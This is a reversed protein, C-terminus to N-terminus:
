IRVSGLWPNGVLLAGITSHYQEPCEAMMKLSTLTPVLRITFTESLYRSHQDVFAAFPAFFLPGDPVITVDNGHIADAIPGIILDHLLQLPGNDRLLPMSGKEDPRQDDSKETIIPEDWSRNECKISQLVGIESYADKNLSMITTTANEKFYPRADVKQTVFHPNQGKQLVWFNIENTGVAVFVTQSSVCNLINEITGTKKSSSRLPQLTLSYQSEMLDM